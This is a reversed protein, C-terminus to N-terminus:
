GSERTLLEELKLEFEPHWGIRSGLEGDALAHFMGRNFWPEDFRDRLRARSDRVIRELVQQGVLEADAHPMRQMAAVEADFIQEWEDHLKFAFRDIETEAVLQNRLWFSRLSFSRHYDRIAKMLRPRDLAIWLLQQVFQRDRYTNAVSEDIDHLVEPYIPLNDLKLQDSIDALQGILDRASIASLSGALLRIAVSIWWGRLLQLFVDEKGPPMAIRFAKTLEIDLDLAKPSADDIVIRSLLSEQEEDKLGLFKERWPLTTAGGISAATRLTELASADDRQASKLSALPSDPELEQTTVLRLMASADLATDMWSNLTRWLDVSQPTLPGTNKIHHKTQLLELPAGDTDFQVDDLAELRLEIGPEAPARRGLEVLAWMCQHVYGLAQGGASHSSTALRTAGENARM